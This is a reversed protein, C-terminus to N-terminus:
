VLSNYDINNYNNLFDGANINLQENACTIIAKKNLLNKDMFFRIHQELLGMVVDKSEWYSLKNRDVSIRGRCLVTTVFAHEYSRILNQMFKVAGIEGHKLVRKFEEGIEKAAQPRSLGNRDSYEQTVFLGTHNHDEKSVGYATYGNVLYETGNISYVLQGDTKQYFVVYKGGGQTIQDPTYAGSATIFKFRQAVNNSIAIIKRKNM